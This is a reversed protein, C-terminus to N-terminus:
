HRRVARAERPLHRASSNDPRRPWRSGRPPWSPTPPSASSASCRPRTPRPASTSWRCPAGTRRRPVEVLGARHRGRGLRARAVSPRCCRSATPPTRSRSGSWAPCRCSGPRSATPRSRTARRSPSSCRPAPPWCSAGAARRRDADALVYGGRASARPRRRARHPRVDPLNQRTLALGTPGAGACSRRAVGRRDRQRRGPAGRRPRPDRAAGLPARGAPPDPRGRRPRHLRPDVRVDRRDADDRRPAGRRAHLRQVRPLHRRLSAAPRAAGHRQAVAGMAHERIGFHLIRGYPSQTGGFPSDAKVVTGAPLFSPAGEITTNNSEALDASGGVFEPLQSPSRRSAGRRQGQPHGRRGQRCPVGARDRLGRAARAALLRDLLAARDPSRPRALRRVRRGVRRAPAAGRDEVARAHALVDDGVEFSQEPDFGLLEKTAASRTPASRPATRGQRHEAAHPAPWGIVTRLRIFSPGTPSPAPARRAGRRPRRRRRRGDPSCTSRSPTGATPPTAPSSTRASRSRPTTRSRSTTTTGSRRRPQRAEPHRRALLGRLHHGGRPRRRLRDRLRHPRVPERGAAADPDLLGREYRAGMAMGVATALGQGLPGTTTEVGARTTTSRTARRAALGLHPVVPPREARPRLRVLFLQIYLTLRRTARLLARVPRPGALGPRGPRPAPLAPLAPLGAPALSMATGPHGNGVKQVADAALVRVTDVARRDLDGWSAPDFPAGPSAPVAPSDAASTVLRSGVPARARVSM